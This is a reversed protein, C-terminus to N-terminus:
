KSSHSKLIKEYSQISIENVRHCRSLIPLAEALTMGHNDYFMEVHRYNRYTSMQKAVSASLTLLPFRYPITHLFAQQLNEDILNHIPFRFKLLSERDIEEISEYFYRLSLNFEVLTSPLNETLIETRILFDDQSSIQLSLYEIVPLVKLLSEIEENTWFHHYCRLYFQKLSNLPQIEDFSAGIISIEEITVNLQRINPLVKFLNPLKNLTSLHIKLHQINLCPQLPFNSNTAQFKMISFRNSNAQSVLELLNAEDTLLGPIEIEHLYNLNNLTQLFRTLEDATFCELKLRELNPFISSMNTAFYDLFFKGELVSRCDSLFLSRIQTGFKPLILRCIWHFQKLDLNALSLHRCHVHICQNFHEHVNYFSYFIEANSLYKYIELFLENPLTLINTLETSM